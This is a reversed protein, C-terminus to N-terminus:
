SHPVSAIVPREGDPAPEVSPLREGTQWNYVTAKLQYSGSPLEPVAITVFQCGFGVQALGVDAQALFNGQEDEVHVGLSYPSGFLEAPLHWGINVTLQGSTNHHPPALLYVDIPYDEVATFTFARDSDPHRAYLSAFMTDNDIVVGCPAYGSEPLLASDVAGLRWNREGKQYTLWIREADEIATLIQQQFFVDTTAYTDRIVATRLLEDGYFYYDLMAQEVFTELPPMVFLVADGSETYPMTAAAIDKLPPTYFPHIRKQQELNTLSGIFTLVWLGLVVLPSIGRKHLHQVGVAAAIALGCWFFIAYKIETFAPIFRTVGWLLCYAAVLWVTLFNSKRQGATVGFLLLLMLFAVNANSFFYFTNSLGGILSFNNVSREAEIATGTGNMLVQVWPLFAIGAIIFCGIVKWFDPKRFRFLLHCLGLAAIPFVSFYHTYLLLILTLTFLSYGILPSKREMVFAYCWFMLATLMAFLMYARMDYMFNIFFGNLAILVAAYFGVERSFYRRALNYTIAITLLGLFISPIGLAFISWGAVRGWAWLLLYYAPAQWLNETIRTLSESFTTLGYHPEAGAYFLTRQEDTWISDHLHNAALVATLLLIVIVSIRSQVISKM